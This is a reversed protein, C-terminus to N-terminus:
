ARMNRGSEREARRAAVRAHRSAKPEASLQRYIEIRDGTVVVQERGVFHGFIGVRQTVLDIEPHLAVIGSAALAAGVTTGPEVRFRLLTQRGPLAFVVEIAITAGIM